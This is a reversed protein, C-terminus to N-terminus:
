KGSLIFNADASGIIHTSQLVSILRLLAEATNFNSCKTTVKNSVKKSSVKKLTDREKRSIFSVLSENSLNTFNKGFVKKIESALNMANVKAYLEKRNM